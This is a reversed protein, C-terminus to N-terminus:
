SRAGLIKKFTSRLAEIQSQISAEVIGIESELICADGTLRADSTIDLYGVGPYAALLENVHARVTDVHNPPVRLTMQKQNRVAALASKVVLLVRSEDDFDAFIKRVAGLVLEVMEGEVRAFYDITRSTTEIMREAAEMQAEDRGDEFGRRREQEYAARATDTIEKARKKADEVLQDAAVIAAWDRAKIVKRGGGPRVLRGGPRLVHAM